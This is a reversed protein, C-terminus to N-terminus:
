AFTPLYEAQLRLLEEMMQRAAGANDVVPDLLLAQLLLERSRERYAEVLLEQIALQLRCMGAIAEPLPGVAVPDVGAASVFVPVEVVADEPLNDIANDANAVNAAIRRERRDFEMDCIIPVALEGSPAALDDALAEEGCAVRRIRERLAQPGGVEARRVGEAYRLYYPGVFEYGFSVYEGIHNDSPFPLLGFTDYLYRTLPELDAEGESMRDRFQPMLSGGRGTDTIGLVWHFHNIGGVTIEIDAEPRGLIAAVTRHTTMAGHCLGVASLTTLRNIGLCVRSEPNTFNLLLADGALREVDRSIPLMLHLSRLTHFAAGPGGCEGLPHRFGYALPVHFDQSWLENRKRAVATVVYDAGALVEERETSAELEATAGHYERVARAFGLMTQLAAEDTDVLGVTLRRGGKLEESAMLDAITGRGFSSSGAGILVVKLERV